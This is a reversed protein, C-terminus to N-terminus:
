AVDDSMLSFVDASFNDVRPHSRTEGRVSACNDAAKWSAKFRRTGFLPSKNGSASRAALALLTMLVALLKLTSRASTSNSTPKIPEMSRMSPVVTM